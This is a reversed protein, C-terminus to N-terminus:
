SKSHLQEVYIGFSFKRSCICIDEVPSFHADAKLWDSTERHRSSDSVKGYDVHWLQLSLEAASLMPQEQLPSPNIGLVWMVTSWGWCSRYCPFGVGEPFTQVRDVSMCVSLVAVHMILIFLSEYGSSTYRPHCIRHGTCLVPIDCMGEWKCTNTSRSDSTSAM